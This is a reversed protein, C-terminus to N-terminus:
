LDLPAFESFVHRAENVDAIPIYECVEMCREWM